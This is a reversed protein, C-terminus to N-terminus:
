LNVNPLYYGFQMIGEWQENSIEPIKTKKIYLCTPNSSFYLQAYENRIFDPLTTSYTAKGPCFGYYFDPPNKKFMDIRSKDYIDFTPMIGTYWSYKYSSDLKAQWYIMDDWRDVFMTDTAKSLLRIVEGNSLYPGYNTVFEVSRDIKEWIYSEKSFTFNVFLILLFFGLIYTLKNKIKYLYDLMLFIAFIFLGYWQISHFAEYFITGPEVYRINAIALGLFVFIVLKTKKLYVAFYFSLFIFIASLGILFIRFINWKSAIFIYIPYFFVKFLGMGLIKSSQIEQKGVTTANVTIVNFFYDKMPVSAITLLSFALLITIPMLKIKSIKKEFMIITFLIFVLLVYPERMFIVFWSFVSSIIYDFTTIRKQMLKEFVLGFLYVLPYIIFAEPLFRNGFVYYKSIEFFLIFGAGALRFRYLILLDMAFGFLLIAVRHYLVLHYITEPNTLSQVFNSIYVALMQHNFFIESYLTNGKEMFYAAMFYFCDDFCGFSTVRSLYLRTVVAYYIFFVILIISFALVKTVDAKRHTFM